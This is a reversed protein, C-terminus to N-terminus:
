KLCFLVINHATRSEKKTAAIMVSSDVFPCVLQYYYLDNMVNWNMEEITTSFTKQKKSTSKIEKYRKYGEAKVAAGVNPRRIVKQGRM